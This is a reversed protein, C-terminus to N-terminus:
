WCCGPPAGAAPSCFAPGLPWSLSGRKRPIVCSVISYIGSTHLRATRHESVFDIGLTTIATARLAIGGVLVAAGLISLDGIATPNLLREALALWFGFLLVLASVVVLPSLREASPSAAQADAAATEAAAALALLAVAGSTQPTMTGGCLLFPPVAVLMTQALGAALALRWSGIVGALRAPRQRSSVGITSGRGLGILRPLPIM